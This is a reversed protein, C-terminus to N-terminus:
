GWVDRRYGGEEARKEMWFEIGEGKKLGEKEEWIDGLTSSVGKGMTKADGCLYVISTEPKLFEYVDSAHHRLVHQVYKLNGKDAESVEQSGSSVQSSATDRSFVVDLRSLVGSNKWSEIEDLYSADGEIGGFRCGYVLWWNGKKEGLKARQELFGRFPTIGTGSAILLVNCEQDPEPAAFIGQVARPFVCLETGAALAAMHGTAVGRRRSGWTTTWEQLNFAIRVTDGPASAFSYYRPQLRAAHELLGALFVVAENSAPLASRHAGLVDPLTMGSERLTRFSAIGEKSCLFLLRKKEEKAQARDALMRLINKNPFQVLDTLRELALRASISGSLGLKDAGTVTLEADADIPILALMAAVLEPPNPALIGLADGPQWTWPISDLQLEIVPQLAKSGTLVRQAAIRVRCPNDHCFPLSADSVLTHDLSRATPVLTLAHLPSKTVNTLQKYKALETSFDFLPAPDAPPAFYYTSAAIGSAPVVNLIPVAAPLAAIPATALVQAPTPTPPSAIAPQPLFLPIDKVSDTTEARVPTPTQIEGSSRPAAPPVQAAPAAVTPPALPSRKPSGPPPPRKMPKSGEHALTAKTPDRVVLDPLLHWLKAIWPDM